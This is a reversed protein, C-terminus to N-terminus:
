RIGRFDMVSKKRGESHLALVAVVNFFLPQPVLLLLNLFVRNSVNFVLHCCRPCPPRLSVPLFNKDTQHKSPSNQKIAYYSNCSVGVRTKKTKAAQQM